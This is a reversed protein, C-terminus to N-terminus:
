FDDLHIRPDIGLVFVLLGDVDGVDAGVDIAPVGGVPPLPYRPEISLM